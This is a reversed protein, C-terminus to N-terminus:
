RLAVDTSSSPTMIYASKDPTLPCSALALTESTRFAMLRMTGFAEAEFRMDRIPHDKQVKKSVQVRVKEGGKNFLCDRDQKNEDDDAIYLSRLIREYGVGGMM